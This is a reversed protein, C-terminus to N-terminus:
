EAKMRVPTHERKRTAEGLLRYIVAFAPMGVVMGVIGFLGGGVTVSFLVWLPPLGVSEGIVKPVIFNGDIQQVILVIVTYALARIPSIMVLILFGPVFGIFPGFFPIINTCGMVVGILLAYPFGGISLIFVCLIGVIVADTVQGSIYNRFTRVTIDGTHALLNAASDPLFARNLRSLQRMLTEKSLLLYISVVLGILVNFMGGGVSVVVNYVQPLMGFIKPLMGLLTGIMSQLWNQFEQWMADTFNLAQATKTLWDQFSYLFGPISNSLRAVSEVLQPGVFWVLVTIGALVSLYTCLMALPRAMKRMKLNKGKSIGAFVKNEFFSLPSNLIFAIVLGILFPTVLSMMSSFLAGLRQLNSLGLYFAIAFAAVLCYGKIQNKDM